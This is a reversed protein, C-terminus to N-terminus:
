GHPLWRGLKATIPPRAWLVANAAASELRLRESEDEILILEQMLRHVLM